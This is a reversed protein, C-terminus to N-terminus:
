EEKNIRTVKQPFDKQNSGLLTTVEQLNRYVSFGAGIFGQEQSEQVYISGRGLMFRYFEKM